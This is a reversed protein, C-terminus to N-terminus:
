EFYYHFGGSPTKVVFTQLGAFQKRLKRFTRLGCSYGAEIDKEKIIDLDVVM